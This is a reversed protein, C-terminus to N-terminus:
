RREPDSEKVHLWSGSDRAELVLAEKFPFDDFADLALVLCMACFLFWGVILFLTALHPSVYGIVFAHRVTWVSGALCFVAMAAYLARRKRRLAKELVADPVDAFKLAATTQRRDRAAKRSAEKENKAINKM